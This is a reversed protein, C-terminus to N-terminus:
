GTLAAFQQFASLNTKDFQHKRMMYAVEIGKLIAFATSFAIFGM